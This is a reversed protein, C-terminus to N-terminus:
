WIRLERTTCKMTNIMRRIERKQFLAVRAEPNGDPENM